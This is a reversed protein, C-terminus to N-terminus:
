SMLRSLTEPVVTLKGGKTSSFRVWFETLRETDIYDRTGGLNPIGQNSWDFVYVGEPLTYGLDSHNKASLISPKISIPVDATNFVLEINGNFDTDKFPNGQEDEFYMVMKRYITGTNLKVINQGNGAFTDAKSQVIKLVSLDPRAIDAPPVTYTEVLPTVTMSKFTVTDGSASNLTYADKLYGVDVTLTVNTESNQLLVLGVADRDNLTVPLVIQFKIKADKGEAAAVNEVYNVGRINDQVNLVDPNLRNLSYLFLEKGSVIFPSFGNNLDLSIRRLVGYPTMAAKAITTATSKLTAVAEVELIIKSLLRAKPINFQLTSSEGDAKQTPLTQYTQRTAQAFYMAREQASVQKGKEM